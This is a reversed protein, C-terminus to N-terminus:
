RDFHMRTKKGANIALSQRRARADEMVGPIEGHRSLHHWYLVDGAQLTLTEVQEHDAHILPPPSSNSSESTAASTARYNPQEYIRSRNSHSHYHDSHPVPRPSLPLPPSDMILHSIDHAFPFSPAARSTRQLSAVWADEIDETDLRRTPLRGPHASQSHHQHSASPSRNIGHHLAPITYSSLAAPGFTSTPATECLIVGAEGHIYHRETGTIFKSHFVFRHGYTTARITPGISSTCRACPIVIMYGVNQGCGHCCLTQTLCDCTRSSHTSSSSCPTADRLANSAYASCGMPLADTSYLAVTPRLLLVAKMGRNTLFTGCKCDLIWVKHAGPPPPLAYPSPHAPFPHTQWFM